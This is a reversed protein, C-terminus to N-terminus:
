AGRSRRRNMALAAVGLAMLMWAAPEPVPPRPGGFPVETIVLQGGDETNQIFQGNSSNFTVFLYSTVPFQGIATPIGALAAQFGVYNQTLGNSPTALIVNSFYYTTADTSDFTGSGGYADLTYAAVSENAPIFDTEVFQLVGGDPTTFGYLYNAQAASGAGFVLGFFLAVKAVMGHMNM